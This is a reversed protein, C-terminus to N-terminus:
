GDAILKHILSPLMRKIETTENTLHEHHAGDLLNLDQALLLQYELESASGLAMYLFRAM